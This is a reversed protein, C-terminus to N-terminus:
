AHIEPRGNHLVGDLLRGAHKKGVKQYPWGDPGRTGDPRLRIHGPMDVPWSGTNDKTAVWEGNQKHLYPVGAAASQDRLGRYADDHVPRALGEGQDTEGGDIVWDLRVGADNVVLWPAIDLRELLPEFSGFTFAVPAGEAKFAAAAALLLDLNKLRPRDEVTTGIAANAPWTRGKAVKAWRSRINQPRKTLLLWVLHPTAYIVDFLDALWEVDVENDFVDALSSCFVFPRAGAAAAKRNWALPKRRNEESTRDRTGVGKGPGGWVVRGMRTEMLHAAYCNDCAPSVRTCGVWPNHTMDAWPILTSDAM